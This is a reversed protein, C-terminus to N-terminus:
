QKDNKKKLTEKVLNYGRINEYTKATFDYIIYLVNLVAVLGLGISVIFQWNNPNQAQFSILLVIGALILLMLVTQTILLWSPRPTEKSKNLRELEEIKEAERKEAEIKEAQKKEIESVPLTSINGKDKKGLLEASYAEVKVTKVYPLKHLDQLLDPLNASNKTVDVLVNWHATTRDDEIRNYCNIINHEDKDDGGPAILSAFESIAGPQNEHAIELHVLEQAKHFFRVIIFKEETDSFITGQVSGNKPGVDFLGLDSLVGESFVIKKDKVWISTYADSYYHHKQVKTILNINDGPKGRSNNLLFRLPKFALINIAPKFNLLIHEIESKWTPSSHGASEKEKLEKFSEIFDAFDAILSVQFEQDHSTILSEQIHINVAREALIKTIDRIVGPRDVTGIELKWINGWNRPKFPSIIVERVDNDQLVPEGNALVLPTRRPFVYVKTDTRLGMAARHYMRLFTELQGNEIEFTEICDIFKM